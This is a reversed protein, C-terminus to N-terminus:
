GFQVHGTKSASKSKSSGFNPIISTHLMLNPPRPPGMCTCGKRPKRRTPAVPTQCALETQTKSLTVGLTLNQTKLFNEFFREFQRVHLCRRPKPYLSVLLPSIRNPVDCSILVIAAGKEQTQNCILWRRKLGPLSPNTCVRPLHPSLLFPKRPSGM